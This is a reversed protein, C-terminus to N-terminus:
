SSLGCLSRKPQVLSSSGANLSMVKILTTKSKLFIESEPDWVRKQAHSFTRGSPSMTPQICLSTYSCSILRTPTELYRSLNMMMSYNRQFSTQSCLKFTLNVVRVLTMMLIGKTKAMLHRLKSILFSFFTATEVLTSLLFITLKVKPLRFAM